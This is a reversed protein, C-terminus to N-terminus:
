KRVWQGSRDGGPTPDEPERDPPLPPRASGPAPQRVGPTNFYLGARKDGAPNGRNRRTNTM